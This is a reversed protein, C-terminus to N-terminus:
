VDGQGCILVECVEVCLRSWLYTGRVGRCVANVVFLFWACRLVCGQGCVLVECLEVFRRSWLYSVRVGRCVSMVV